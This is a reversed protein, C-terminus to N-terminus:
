GRINMLKIEKSEDVTGQDHVKVVAKPNGRFNM